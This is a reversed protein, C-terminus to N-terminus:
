PKGSVFKKEVDRIASELLGVLVRAQAVSLELEVNSVVDKDQILHSTVSDPLPSVSPSVNWAELNIHGEHIGPMVELFGQRYQVDAIAITSM